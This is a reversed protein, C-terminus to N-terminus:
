RWLSPGWVYGHTIHQATTDGRTMKKACPREPPSVGPRTWNVALEASVARRADGHRTLPGGDGVDRRRLRCAAFARARARALMRALMRAGQNLPVPPPPVESVCPAHPPKTPREGLLQQLVNTTVQRRYEGSKEDDTSKRHRGTTSSEGVLRGSMSSWRRGIEVSQKRGRSQMPMPRTETRRTRPHRKARDCTVERPRGQLRAASGASSKTRTFQDAGWRSRSGVGRRRRANRRQGAPVSPPAPDAEKGGERM